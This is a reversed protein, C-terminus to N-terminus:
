ENIDFFVEEDEYMLKDLAAVEAKSFEIETIININDKINVKWIDRNSHFYEDMDVYTRVIVIDTGEVTSISAITGKRSSMINVLALVAKSFVDVDVIGELSYEFGKTIEM